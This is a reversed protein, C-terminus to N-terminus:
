TGSINSMLNILINLLNQIFVVKVQLWKNKVFIKKSM